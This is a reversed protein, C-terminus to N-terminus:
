LFSSNKRATTCVSPVLKFITKVPSNKLNLASPQTFNTPLSNFLQSTRKTRNEKRERHFYGLTICITHLCARGRYLERDLTSRKAATYPGGEEVRDLMGARSRGPPRQGILRGDIVLSVTVKIKLPFFRTGSYNLSYKM